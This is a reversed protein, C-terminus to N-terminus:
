TKLKPKDSSKKKEKSPNYKGKTDSQLMTQKENLYEKKVIMKM